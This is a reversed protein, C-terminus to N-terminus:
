ASSPQRKAHRRASRREGSAYNHIGRCIAEAVRRQYAPQLLKTRDGANNIYGVECLVAPMSTERLVCFGEPYMTMDSMAGRDRMGSVDALEQEVCRALRRSEASSGHYYITTGSISNAQGWSDNHISVFVNAGIENAIQPRTQLPVNTDGERTM